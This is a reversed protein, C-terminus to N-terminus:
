RRSASAARVGLQTVLLASGTMALGKLFMSIQIARMAEDPATAIGVGHVAFTVPVLFLALLWGGLRPWVGLLVMAAGALEVVGSAIVWLERLPIAPHMLAVYRALDTFHTVGSLLFIATFLVRGAIGIAPHHLVLDGRLIQGGSREAARSAIERVGQSQTTAM